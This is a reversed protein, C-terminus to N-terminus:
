LAYRSKELSNIVEENVNLGHDARGKPKEFVEVTLCGDNILSTMAREKREQSGGPGGQARTLREYYSRSRGPTQRVLDIMANCLGVWEDQAKAEKISQKLEAREGPRLPKAVSHAFWVDREFGLVDPHREKNSILDFVLEQYATPFRVKHAKLVRPSDAADGDKFVNYVGQADGTWASAGRPGIQDTEGSGNIKATHSIILVPFGVFAQKTLALARGVEANDNENELEFVANATDFVVLPLAPYFTGDAKVNDVTWERYEDAVKAVEKPDLRHAPIVRIRIEFDEARLGTGGYACVSYITRQVQVVSETIIIVNRRISPRLSFDEPCLHAAVLALPIALTTKGVGPAGALVNVGVSMFDDFLYEFMTVQEAGAHTAQTLSFPHASPVCVVSTSPRNRWERSYGDAMYFVTPYSVDVDEHMLSRWKTKFDQETHNPNSSRTSWERAIEYAQATDSLRSLGFLVKLWGGDYSVEPPIVTLAARLDAYTEPAVIVSGPKVRLSLASSKETTTIIKPCETPL